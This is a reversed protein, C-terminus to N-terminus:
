PVGEETQANTLSQYWGSNDIVLFVDSHFAEMNLFPSSEVDFDYLNPHVWPLNKTIFDCYEAKQHQAWLASKEVFCQYDDNDGNFFYLDFPNYTILGFKSAEQVSKVKLSYEVSSIDAALNADNIGEGM